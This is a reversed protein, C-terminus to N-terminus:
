GGAGRTEWGSRSRRGATSGHPPAAAGPPLPASSRGRPRGCARHVAAAIGDRRTGARRNASLARAARSWGPRARRTAGRARAAEARVGECRRGDAPPGVRRGRDEPPRAGVRSAPAHSWRPSGGSPPDTRTRRTVILTYEGRCHCTRGGRADEDEMSGIQIEQARAFGRHIPAGGEGLDVALNLAVRATASHLYHAPLRIVLALEDVPHLTRCAFAEPGDDHIGAGEGVVGQSQTVGDGGDGKRDHLDVEGIDMAPLLEAALRHDGADSTALNRAETGAAVEQAHVRRELRELGPPRRPARPSHPGMRRRGIKTAAPPAAVAASM